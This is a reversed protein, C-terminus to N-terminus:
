CFLTQPRPTTFIVIMMSAAEGQLNTLRLVNQVLYMKILGTSNQICHPDSIQVPGSKLHDLKTRNKFPGFKYHNM